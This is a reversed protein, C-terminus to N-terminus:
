LQGWINLNNHAKIYKTKFYKNVFIPDTIGVKQSGHFYFSALDVHQNLKLCV